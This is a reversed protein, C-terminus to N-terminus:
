RNGDNPRKETTTPAFTGIVEFAAWHDVPAGRSLLSVQAARLAAAADGTSRLARHFETMLPRTNADDVKWLTAVVQGAGAAVFSRALSLLGESFSARGVHTECSSLVVTPLSAFRFSAIDRAFLFAPVGASSGFVLRSLDPFELNSEAHGAFHIVRYKPADTAFQAPTAAMGELLKTTPYLRTIEEVERKVAALSGLAGGESAGVALLSDSHRFEPDSLRDHLALFV